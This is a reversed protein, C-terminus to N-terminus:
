PCASFLTPYLAFQAPISIESDVVTTLGVEGSRVQPFCGRQETGTKCTSCKICLSEANFYSTYDIGDTCPMCGDEDSLYFGPSPFFSPSPFKLVEPAAPFVQTRTLRVQSAPIAISSNGEESQSHDQRHPM